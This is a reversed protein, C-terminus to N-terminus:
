LEGSINIIANWLSGIRFIGNQVVGTMGVTYTGSEGEISTTINNVEEEQFQGNAANLVRRLVQEKSGFEEELAELGHKAQGFTHQIKAPESMFTSISQEIAENNLTVGAISLVVPLSPTGPSASAGSPSGM